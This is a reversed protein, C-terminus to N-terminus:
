LHASSKWAFSSSSHACDRLTDSLSLHAPPLPGAALLSAPVSSGLGQAGKQLSLPAPLSPLPDKGSGSHM